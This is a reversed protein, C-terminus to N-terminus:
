KERTRGGTSLRLLASGASGTGGAGMGPVGQDSAEPGDPLAMKLRTDRRETGPPLTTEVAAMGKLYDALSGLDEDTLHSTGAHIYEAMAGRIPLGDPRVGSRMARVIDERSWRGIGTRRDPTINPAAYPGPLRGAGALPQWELFNFFFDKPTHCAGCHGLHNVLYSGRTAEAPLGSTEAREQRSFNFLKWVWILPRLTLPFMLDHPPEEKRVAPVTKLYAWLDALDGDAMGTYWPYPFIPYYHCGDPAVGEVMSRRFDEFSWGGIGTERDTTINPVYFTGLHTVMALGGALFAGEQATHCSSCAAARFVYRGRAVATADAAPPGEAPQPSASGPAALMCSALMAAALRFRALHFRVLRVYPSGASPSGSRLM